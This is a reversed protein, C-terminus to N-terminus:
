GLLSGVLALLSYAASQSTPFQLLGRAAAKLDSYISSGVFLKTKATTTIRESSKSTVRFAVDYEGMEPAEAQFAVTAAGNHQVLITQTGELATTKSIMEVTFVDSASGANRVELTYEIKEKPAAKVPEKIITASLVDRSVRGRAKFVGPPVGEFEDITTFGVEYDGDAADKSVIVRAKLPNEYRPSDEKKWGAPLTAADVELRDWDANKSSLTEGGNSIMGTDNSVLVELTQGPGVLGMDIVGLAAAEGTVPGVVDIKSAAAAQSAILLGISFIVALQATKM